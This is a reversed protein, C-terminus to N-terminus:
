PRCNVSQVTHVACYGQDPLHAAVTLLMLILFPWDRGKAVEQMNAKGVAQIVYLNLGVPPTILACEVM